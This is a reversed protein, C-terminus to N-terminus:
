RTQSIPMFPWKNKGRLGIDKDSTKLFIGYPTGDDGSGAGHNRPEFVTFEGDTQHYMVRLNGSGDRVVSDKFYKQQQESLTRGQSDKRSAFAASMDKANKGTVTSGSGTQGSGTGRKGSQGTHGSSNSGKGARNESERFESVDEGWPAFLAERYADGIFGIAQRYEYYEGNAYLDNVKDVINRIRKVQNKSLKKEDFVFEITPAEEMGCVLILKGDISQTHAYIYADGTGNKFDSKHELTNRCIADLDKKIIGHGLWQVM